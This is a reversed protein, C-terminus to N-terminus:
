AGKTDEPPTRLTNLRTEIREYISDALVQVRRKCYPHHVILSKTHQDDTDIPSPMDQVRLPAAYKGWYLYRTVVNMLDQEDDSLAISCNICLQSLDHTAVHKRLQEKNEALGPEIALLCGKLLCELAYGLLLLYDEFLETDLFDYLEEGELPGSKGSLHSPSKLKERFRATDRENARYAIEYLIDAARKHRRAPRAWSIPWQWAALFAFTRREEIFSQEQESTADDFIRGM